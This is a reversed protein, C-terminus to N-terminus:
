GTPLEDVPSAGLQPWLLAQSILINLFEVFQRSQNQEDYSHRTMRQSPWQHRLSVTGLAAPSGHTLDLVLLSQAVIQMWTGVSSM